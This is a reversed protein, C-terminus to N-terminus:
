KCIKESLLSFLFDIIKKFNWSCQWIFKKNYSVKNRLFIAKQIKPFYKWHFVYIDKNNKLDNEILDLLGM